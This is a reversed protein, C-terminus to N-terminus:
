FVLRTSSSSSSRLDRHTTTASSRAQAIQNEIKQLCESENELLHSNDLLTPNDLVNESGNNLLNSYLEDDDSEDSSCYLAFDISDDEDSFDDMDAYIDNFIEDDSDDDKETNM